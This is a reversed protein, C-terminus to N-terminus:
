SSGGILKPVNMDFVEGLNTDVPDHGAGLVVAESATLRRWDCGKWQPGDELTPELEGTWVWLGPTVDEPIAPGDDGGGSYSVRRAVRIATPSGRLVLGRKQKPQRFTGKVSPMFNFVYIVLHM